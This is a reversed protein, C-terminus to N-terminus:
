YIASGNKACSAIPGKLGTGEGSASNAPTNKPIDNPSHIVFKYVLMGLVVALLMMPGIWCPGSCCNGTRCAKGSESQPQEGSQSPLITKDSEHSTDTMTLTALPFYKFQYSNKTLLLRLLMFCYPAPTLLRNRATHQPSDLNQRM